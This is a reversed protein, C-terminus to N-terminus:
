FEDGEFEDGEYEERPESEEEEPEGCDQCYFDKGNILTGAISIRGCIQCKTGLQWELLRSEAEERTMEGQRIKLRFIAPLDTIM